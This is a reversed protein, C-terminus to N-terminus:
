ADSPEATESSNEVLMLTWQSQVLLRAISEEAVVAASGERTWEPEPDVGVRCKASCDFFSGKTEGTLKGSPYIRASLNHPSSAASLGM